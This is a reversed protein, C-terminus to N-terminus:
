WVKNYHHKYPVIHELVAEMLNHSNIGVIFHAPMLQRECSLELRSSSSLNYDRTRM